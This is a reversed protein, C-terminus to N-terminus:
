VKKRRDNIKGYLREYDEKMRKKHSRVLAPFGKNGETLDYPSPKRM